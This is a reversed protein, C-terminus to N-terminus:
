AGGVRSITIIREIREEEDWDSLCRVAEKYGNSKRPYKETQKWVMTGIYRGSAYVYTKCAGGGVDNFVNRRKKALNEKSGM